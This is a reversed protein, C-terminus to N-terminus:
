WVKREKLNKVAQKEVRGLAEYMISQSFWGIVIFILFMWDGAKQGAYQLKAINEQAICAIVITIIAAMIHPWEMKLFYGANFEGDSLKNVKSIKSLLRVLLTLFAVLGLLLINPM